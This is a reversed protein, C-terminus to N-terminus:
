PGKGKMEGQKTEYLAVARAKHEESQLCVVQTEQELELMERYSSNLSQNLLRKTMGLAKSPAKAMQRALELTKDELDKLPVVRNVVGMHAMEHADLTKGTFALEKAMQLGILRPTIFTAGLDPVLAIPLFAQTFTAEESAIIMDCNLALSFGAGLAVGNVAAIVPKEMERIALVIKSGHIFTQRAVEADALNPLERLDGGVCFAKGTGTLVVVKVEDSNSVGILADLLDARFQHRMANMSEPSNMRVMAIQDILDVLVTEYRREM